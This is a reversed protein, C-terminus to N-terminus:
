DVKSNIMEIENQMNVDDTSSDYLLAGAVCNKKANGSSNGFMTVNAYNRSVYCQGTTTQDPALYTDAVFYPQDFTIDDYQEIVFYVNYKSTQGTTFYYNVPNVYVPLKETAKHTEDAKLLASVSNAKVILTCSFTIGVCAAIIGIKKLKSKM